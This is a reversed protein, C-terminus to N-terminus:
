LALVQHLFPKSCTHIYNLNCTYAHVTWEVKGSSRHACESRVALASQAFPLCASFPIQHVSIFPSHHALASRLHLAFHVTFLIHISQSRLTFSKNLVHQSNDKCQIEDTVLIFYQLNRKKHSCKIGRKLLKGVFRLFM